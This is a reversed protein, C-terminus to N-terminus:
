CMGVSNGDDWMALCDVRVLPTEDAPQYNKIKLM